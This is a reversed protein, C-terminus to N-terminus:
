TEKHLFKETDTIVVEVPNMTFVWFMYIRCKRGTSPVLGLRWTGWSVFYFGLEKGLARMFCLLVPQDQTLAGAELFVLAAGQVMCLLVQTGPFPDSPGTPFSSLFFDHVYNWKRWIYLFFCVWWYVSEIVMGVWPLALLSHKISFTFIMSCYRLIQIGGRWESKSWLGQPIRDWKHASYFQFGLHSDSSVHLAINSVCKKKKGAIAQSSFVTVLNNEHKLIDTRREIYLLPKNFGERHWWQLLIRFHKSFM